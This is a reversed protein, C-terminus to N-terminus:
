PDGRGQIGRARAFKSGVSSAAGSEPESLVHPLPSIGYTDGPDSREFCACSPFATVSTIAEKSPPTDLPVFPLRRPLSSVQDLDGLACDTVWPVRFGWVTEEQNRM